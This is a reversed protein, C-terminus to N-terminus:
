AVEPTPTGGREADAQYANLARGLYHIKGHLKRYEPGCGKWRWQALTKATFGLGEAAEEPPYLTVPDFCQYKAM